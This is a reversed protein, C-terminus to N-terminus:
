ADSPKGLQPRSFISKDACGVGRGLAAGVHTGVQKGLLTGEVTGVARGEAAGVAFGVAAGDVLGEAVGEIAEGPPAGCSNGGTVPPPSGVPATGDAGVVGDGGPAGVVGDGGPAAGVTSVAGTAPGSGRRGMGGVIVSRGVEAGM